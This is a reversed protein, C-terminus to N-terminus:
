GKPASIRAMREWYSDPKGPFRAVVRGLVEGSFPQMPHHTSDLYVPHWTGPPEYAPALALRPKPYEMTWVLRGICLGNGIQSVVEQGILAAPSTESADFFIMDGPAVGTGGGFPPSVVIYYTSEKNPVRWAAVPEPPMSKQAAWRGECFPPIQVIQGEYAIEVLQPQLGTQEL